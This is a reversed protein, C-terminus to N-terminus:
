IALKMGSHTPKFGLSEYFRVADPRRQDTTLQVISCGARKSLDIAERFLIKGIGHGRVSSKVRVSEIQARTAGQHSLGPIFTLQLMAVIESDQVGVLIQNGKQSYIDRFAAEYRAITAADLSERQTGLVHDALLSLIKPLDEFAASRFQIVTNGQTM